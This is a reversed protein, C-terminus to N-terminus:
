NGDNTVNVQYIDQTKIKIIRDFTGDKLDKEVVEMVEGEGAFEVADGNKLDYETPVKGSIRIYKENLDM